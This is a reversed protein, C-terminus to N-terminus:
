ITGYIMFKNFTYNVNETYYVAIIRCEDFWAQFVASQLQLEVGEKIETQITLEM